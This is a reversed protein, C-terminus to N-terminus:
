LMTLTEKSEHVLLYFACKNCTAIHEDINQPNGAGCSFFSFFIWCCRGGNKGNHTGDLKDCTSVPCIGRKLANIGDPERGCKM